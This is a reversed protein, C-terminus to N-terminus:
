EEGVSRLTERLLEAAKRIEAVQEDEKRSPKHTAILSKALAAGSNEKPKSSGIVESAIFAAMFGLAEITIKVGFIEIMTITFLTLSSILYPQM